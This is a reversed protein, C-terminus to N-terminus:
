LEIDVWDMEDDSELQYDDDDSDFLYREDESYYQPAEDENDVFVGSDDDDSNFAVIENESDFEIDIGDEARHSENEKDRKYIMDERRSNETARAKKQSPVEFEFRSWDLRALTGFMWLQHHQGTRESRYTYEIKANSTSSEILTEMEASRKCGVFIPRLYDKTAHINFFADVLQLFVSRSHGSVTFHLGFKIDKNAARCCTLMDEMGKVDSFDGDIDFNFWVGSLALNYVYPATESRVVSSLHLMSYYPKLIDFSSIQLPTELDLEFINNRKQDTRKSSRSLKIEMGKFYYRYIMERVEVPLKTVPCSARNNAVPAVATEAM